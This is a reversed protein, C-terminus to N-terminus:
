ESGGGELTKYPPYTRRGIVSSNGAKESGGWGERDRSFQTPVLLSRNMIGITYGRM